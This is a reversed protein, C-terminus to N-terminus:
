NYVPYNQRLLDNIKKLEDASDQDSVEATTKSPQETSMRQDAQGM